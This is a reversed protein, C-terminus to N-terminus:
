EAYIVEQVNEDNFGVELSKDYQEKQRVLAFHPVDSRNKKDRIDARIREWSLDINAPLIIYIVEM